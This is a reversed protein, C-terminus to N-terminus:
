VMTENENPSFGQWDFYNMQKMILQNSIKMMFANFRM